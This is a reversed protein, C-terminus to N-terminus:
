LLSEFDRLSEGTLKKRIQDPNHLLDFIIKKVDELNSTFRSHLHNKLTGSFLKMLLDSAKNDGRLYVELKGKILQGDGQYRFLFIVEASIFSPLAWHSLEGRGYFTRSSASSDTLSIEGKIGSPDVIKVGEKAKTVQYAPQFNYLNWLKGLLLPHDLVKSWVDLSSDVVFDTQYTITAKEILSKTKIINDAHCPHAALLFIAVCIWLLLSKV